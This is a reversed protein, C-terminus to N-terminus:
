DNRKRMDYAFDNLKPKTEINETSKRMKNWKLRSFYDVKVVSRICLSYNVAIKCFRPWENNKHENQAKNEFKYNWRRKVKKRKFIRSFVRETCLVCAWYVTCAWYTVCMNEISNMNKKSSFKAYFKVSRKVIQFLFFTM